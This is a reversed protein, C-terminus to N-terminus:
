SCIPNSFPIDDVVSAIKAIVCSCSIYLFPCCYKCQEWAFSRSTVSIFIHRHAHPWRYCLPSQLYLYMFALSHHNPWMFLRYWYQTPLFVGSITGGPLLFCLFVPDVPVHSDESRCFIFDMVYSAPPSNHKGCCDWLWTPAALLLLLLVLYKSVHSVFSVSLNVPPTFAASQCQHSPSIPWYRPLQM